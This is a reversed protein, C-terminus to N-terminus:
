APEWYDARTLRIQAIAFITPIIRSYNTSIARWGLDAVFWTWLAPGICAFISRVAGYRAASLAMGRRATQLALHSQFQAAAAVSGDILAQKAVQYSAFQIAFQRAIQQLLMPQIVAGVALASGGKFLLALPNRQGLPTLSQALQSGAIANKVRHTLTQQERAPLQKWARGLLSLFVEAELDTTSLTHSYSIKLYHCVQILAQRYTVQKTRGQLVTVGDAALYRFRQEIADLRAKRGQCQVEIPEPTQIYDLPNFKRRFLIEALQQLEEDTALELGARLEDM